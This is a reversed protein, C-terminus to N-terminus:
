VRLGQLKRKKKYAFVYLSPSFRFMLFKIYQKKTIDNYKIGNKYNDKYCQILKSQISRKWDEDTSDQAYLYILPCYMIYSFAIEHKMDPYRNTLATNREDLSDYFDLCFQKSVKNTHISSSDGQYYYYYEGRAFAVAKCNMIIKWMTGLDEHLKGKPFINEGNSLWIERRALRGCATSGLEKNTIMRKITEKSTLVDVRSIDNLCTDMDYNGILKLEGIIMDAKTKLAIQYLNAVMDKSIVDDSDVFLIYEGKAVRFGNNRAASPGENTNNSYICIRKDTMKLRQLASEYEKGSGDDVIIIEINEYSQALISNICHSFKSQETKYYPVIITILENNEM